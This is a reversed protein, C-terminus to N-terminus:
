IHHYSGSMKKMSVIWHFETDILNKRLREVLDGIDNNNSISNLNHSM